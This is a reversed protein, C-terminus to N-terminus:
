PLLCSRSACNYTCVSIFDLGFVMKEFIVSDLLSVFFLIYVQCHSPYLFQDFRFMEDGFIFSGFRFVEIGFLVSGLPSSRPESIILHLFSPRNSDLFSPIIFKASHYICSRHVDLKFEVDSVFTFGM